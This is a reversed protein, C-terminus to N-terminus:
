GSTLQTVNANELTFLRPQMQIFLNVQLLFGSCEAAEGAFTAPMAMPSGSASPPAPTPQFAVKFANVLETLPDLAAPAETSM